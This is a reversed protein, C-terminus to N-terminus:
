PPLFSDNVNGNKLAPSAILPALTSTSLPTLEIELPPPIIPPTQVRTHMARDVKWAGSLFTIPFSTDNWLSPEIQVRFSPCRFCCTGFDDKASEDAGNQGM